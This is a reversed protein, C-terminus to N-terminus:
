CGSNHRFRRYSGKNRYPAGDGQAGISVISPIASLSVGHRERYHFIMEETNDSSADNVVVIEKEIGTILRVQRIKECIDGITSGENYVPIIISLKV